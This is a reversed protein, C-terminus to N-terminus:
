TKPEGKVTQTHWVLVETCNAALPEAEGPAVGLSQLFLDEEYGAKYPMRRRRRKGEEGEEEKEQILDVAVAFGAMDVPFTRASIWPDTFGVM